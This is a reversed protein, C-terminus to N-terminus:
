GSREIRGRAKLRTVIQEFAARARRVRSAVTGPPIALLEAIESGTMEELEYLVFVARLDDPLADLIESLLARAETRDLAEEAGPRQDPVDAADLMPTERRKGARRRADSAIRLAVGFLFSKESGPAIEDLRRALVLWVSQTADDVDASPVGLRLLSRWVFDVHAAVLAQLRENSTPDEASEAADLSPDEITLPVAPM